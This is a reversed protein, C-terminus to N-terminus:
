KKAVLAAKFEVKVEAGLWATNAWEGTGIGYQLRQLTFSGSAIQRAGERQSRFAIEVDRRQGKIELAGRATHLDGSSQVTTSAFSVRPYERVAFFEKDKLATDIEPLGGDVSAPDLWVDIRAVRGQAFCVTGGFRRFGGSFPNGAQMVRFTVAGGATDVAYCDEGAASATGVAAWLLVLSGLGKAMVIKM